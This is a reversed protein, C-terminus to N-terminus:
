EDSQIYMKIMGSDCVRNGGGGGGRAIFMLVTVHM